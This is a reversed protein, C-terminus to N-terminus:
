KVGHHAAVPSPKDGISDSDLAALEALLSARRSSAWTIDIDCAMGLTAAPVDEADMWGHADINVISGDAQLKIRDGICFEGDASGRTVIYRLGLVMAAATM